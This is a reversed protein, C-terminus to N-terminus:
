NTKKNSAQRLQEKQRADRELSLQWDTAGRKSTRMRQDQTSARALEERERLGREAERKLRETTLFLVRNENAKPSSSSRNADRELQASRVSRFEGLNTLTRVLCLTEIGKIISLPM